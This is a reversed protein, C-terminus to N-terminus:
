ACGNRCRGSGIAEFIGGRFSDGYVSTGFVFEFIDVDLSVAEVFLGFDFLFRKGGFARGCEDRGRSLGLQGQQDRDLALALGPIRGFRQLLQRPKGLGDIDFNNARQRLFQRMRM